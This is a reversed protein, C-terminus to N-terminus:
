ADPTFAARLGKTRRTRLLSARYLREALVVLVAATVAIIGLALVGEWWSADGAVLRQPM